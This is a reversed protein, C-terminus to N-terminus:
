RGAGVHHRRKVLELSPPTTPIIRDTTLTRALEDADRNRAKTIDGYAKILLRAGLSM